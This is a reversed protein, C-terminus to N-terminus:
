GMQLLLYVSLSPSLILYPRHFFSDPFGSATSPARAFAPTPPRRNTGPAVAEAAPIALGWATAIIRKRRVRVKRPSGATRGADHPEGGGWEDVVRWRRVRRARPGRALRPATALRVGARAAKSRRPGPVRRPREDAIPRLPAAPAPGRPPSRAKGKTAWWPLALLSPDRGRGDVARRAGHSPFLLSRRLCAPMPEPEARRRVAGGGGGIRDGIVSGRKAEGRPM